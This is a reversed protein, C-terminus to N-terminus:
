IRTSFRDPCFPQMLAPQSQEIISPNCINESFGGRCFDYDIQDLDTSPSSGDVRCHHCLFCLSLHSRMEGRCDAVLIRYGQSSCVKKSFGVGAGGDLWSQM